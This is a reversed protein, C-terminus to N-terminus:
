HFPPSSLHSSASNKSNVKHPMSVSSLSNSILRKSCPLQSILNRRRDRRRSKMLEYRRDLLPSGVKLIIIHVHQETVGIPWYSEQKGQKRALQSMDLAPVWRGQRPRRSRDLLSLLGTSDYMV